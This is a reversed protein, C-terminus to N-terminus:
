ELFRAITLIKYVVLLVVPILVFAAWKWYATEEVRFGDVRKLNGQKMEPRSSSSSANSHASFSPPTQVPEDDLHDNLYPDTIEEDEDEEVPAEKLLQGQANVHGSMTLTLEDAEVITKAQEYVGVWKEIENGEACNFWYSGSPSIEDAGNLVGSELLDLVESKTYPGEIVNRPKRVLYKREM